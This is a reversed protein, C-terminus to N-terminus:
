PKDGFCYIGDADTLFIGVDHLIAAEYLFDKDLLLEPHQDAIWLAKDAVSRSHTLLIHKLENAETYYKDILELPNM